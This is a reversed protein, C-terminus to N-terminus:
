RQRRRRTVALIGASGLLLVSSPEPIATVNVLFGGPTINLNNPSFYENIGLYFQGPETSIFTGNTGVLLLNAAPIGVGASLSPDRPNFGPTNLLGQPVFAGILAGVNLLPTGFPRPFTIQSADVLAQELPTYTFDQGAVVNDIQVTIGNPGNNPVFGTAINIEGTATFNIVQGSGTFTWALVFDGGGHSSAMDARGFGGTATSTVVILDALAPTSVLTILPITIVTLILRFQKLM